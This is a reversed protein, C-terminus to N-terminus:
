IWLFTGRYLNFTLRLRQWDFVCITINTQKIGDCVRPYEQWIKGKATTDFLYKSKARGKRCRFNLVFSVREKEMHYKQYSQWIRTSLSFFDGYSFSDIAITDFTNWTTFVTCYTNYINKRIYKQVNKLFVTVFSLINKTYFIQIKRKIGLHITM